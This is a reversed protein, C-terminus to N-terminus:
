EGNNLRKQLWESWEKMISFAREGIRRMSGEFRDRTKSSQAVGDLCWDTVDILKMLNDEIKDDIVSDGVAETRGILIELLRIIEESNMGNDKVGISRKGTIGVFM